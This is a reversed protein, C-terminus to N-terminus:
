LADPHDKPQPHLEARPAPRLVLMDPTAGEQPRPPISDGLHIRHRCNRESGLQLWFCGCLCPVGTRRLFNGQVRRLVRSLLRAGLFMCTVTRNVATSADRGTVQQCFCWAPSCARLGVPTSDADRLAPPVPLPLRERDCRMTRGSPPCTPPGWGRSSAPGLLFASVAIGLPHSQAGHPPSM